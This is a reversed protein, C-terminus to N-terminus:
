LERAALAVTVTADLPTNMADSVICVCYPTCDVTPWTWVSGDGAGIQRDGSRAAGQCELLTIRDRGDILLTSYPPVYTVALSACRDCINATAVDCDAGTPNPYLDVRLNRLPEAGTKVEVILASDRGIYTSTTSVCQKRTVLPICVCDNAVVPLAPPAPEPCEPDDACDVPVCEPECFNCSLEGDIMLADQLVIEPDLWLSPNAAGLTFRVFQVPACGCGCSTDSDSDLTPGELLAVTRLQRWRERFTDASCCDLFTLTNGGCARDAGCAPSRLANALWRLGYAAGCCSSAVLLGEVEITRSARRGARLVGGDLTSREDLGRTWTAGFGKMGTVWLGAFEASQPILPDFWPAPDLPDAPSTATPAPACDGFTYADCDPLCVNLWAPGIGGQKWYQWTRRKDWVITQGFKAYDAAQTM